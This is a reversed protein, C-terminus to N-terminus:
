GRETTILKFNALCKDVTPYDLGLSRVDLDNREGALESLEKIESVAKRNQATVEESDPNDIDIRIQIILLYASILLDKQEPSPNHLMSSYENTDFFLKNFVIDSMKQLSTRYEPNDKEHFHFDATLTRLSKAAEIFSNLMAERYEDSKHESFASTSEVPAKIENAEKTKSLVCGNLLIIFMSLLVLILVKKM